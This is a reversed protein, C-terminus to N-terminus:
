FRIEFILMDFKPIGCFTKNEFWSPCEFWPRMAGMRKLERAKRAQEVELMMMSGPCDPVLLVGRARDERAKDLVRPVLGVPPHFYGFGRSWDQGFADSAESKESLYRSHFPRMKYSYDLAFYDASFRGFRELLGGFDSDSIMYDGFDFDKSVRDAFRIEETERSQWVIEFDVKYGNILFTLRAM